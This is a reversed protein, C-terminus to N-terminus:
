IKKPLIMIRNSHFPKKLIILPVASTKKVSWSLGLMNYIEPDQPSLAIAKKLEKEAEVLKQQKFLVQGYNKHALAHDPQIAIVQLYHRTADELLGKESMMDALNLHAQINHPNYELAKLYNKLAEAPRNTKALANALNNYAKDNEPNLALSARYHSIAEDIEGKEMLALGLNYVMLYDQPSVSIAHKFLTISNRWYSVQKNTVFILPLLVIAAILAAKIRINKQNKLIAGCGWSIIIFLGIGPIYAWRDAMAPWRGGQVIGIVPLLTGIFWLWGIILFPAKKILRLFVTTVLAIILLAGFVQWLPLSEPFPYYVSLNDPWFIKIIYNIYSVLSNQIRLMMPATDRPVMQSNNNLTIVSLGIALFSVVLLPLKEIILQIAQKIDVSLKHSNEPKYLQIRHLPWFDMLLLVCPLTVLMPKAILGLIMATFVLLYRKISPQRTYYFYALMTLMWFLTSLVNKREAIWAVSDVNFPHIAFLAAVFASQWLAGTMLKFVGFLLLTNIVHFFVNGLHHMGADNGFLQWDMMHSLWTLPHWYARNDSKSIGFAWFLNDLTIGQQVHQNETIYTDDDFGVFEYTAVKRYISFTAAAILFCILFFQINTNLKMPQKLYRTKM